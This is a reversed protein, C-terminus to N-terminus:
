VPGIPKYPNKKVYRWRDFIVFIFLLWSVGLIGVGGWMAWEPAHPTMKWWMLMGAGAIIGAFGIMRKNRHLGRVKNIWAMRRVHEPDNDVAAPGTM